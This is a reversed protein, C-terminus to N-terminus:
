GGIEMIAPNQQEPKDLLWRSLNNAWGVMFGTFDYDEKGSKAKMADYMASCDGEVGEQRLLYFQKALWMSCRDYGDGDKFGETAKKYDDPLALVEKLMEEKKLREDKAPQEKGGIISELARTPKVGLSSGDSM